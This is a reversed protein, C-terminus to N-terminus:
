VNEAERWIAPDYEVGLGPGDPVPVTGDRADFSPSLWWEGGGERRMGRYEQHPGLNPVVAAFHLMYATNPDAKPCHPTVQLDAAQAMKAVRLCRTFGGNYALDPQVLDVVGNQIMWAIRPLSSDQEGGAVTMDLADAVRKTEEYEEWPCPEEFFGVGHAELMRGVEIAHEADYSGNADVYIAIEDGFAERALPVLRETRGPAADANKSMRGGVKLKVAGAHTEALREALWAVEEEPTTDRRSSSLYIPIETRLVPGLLACVPKDALKGLMDLLSFEVHSVCNWFALGAMKYNSRHTYVGDLLAELDRADRGISYPAILEKLIPWLYPRRNTSAIGVAGDTSRACVFDVERWRLVHISEIEIPSSFHHHLHLM